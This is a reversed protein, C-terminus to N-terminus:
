RCPWRRSFRRGSSPRSDRWSYERGRWGAPRCAQWRIDRHEVYGGDFGRAQAQGGEGGAMEVVVGRHEGVGGARAPDAVALRQVAAMGPTRQRHQEAMPLQAAVAHPRQFQLVAAGEDAAGAQHIRFAPGIDFQAPHELGFVAVVAVGGFRAQGDELVGPALQAHRAHDAQDADAVFGGVAQGLAEAALVDFVHSGDAFTVRLLQPAPAGDRVVTVTGRWPFPGEWSKADKHAKQWDERQKDLQKELVEAEVESRKGDKDFVGAQPVVEDNDISAIRDDIFATGYVYQDFIENVTKADGSVDVLAARLDAASPHRFHWRKYYERFAKEMVPKGLREELDHM